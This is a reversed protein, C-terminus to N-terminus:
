LSSVAMGAAIAEAYIGGPQVGGSQPVSRNDHEARGPNTNYRRTRAVVLSVPHWRQQRGTGADVCVLTQGCLQCVGGLLDAHGEIIPVADIRWPQWVDHPCDINMSM